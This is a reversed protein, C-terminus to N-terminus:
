PSQDHPHPCPACAALLAAPPSRPVLARARPARGSHVRTRWAAAAVVAALSPPVSSHQQLRCQSPHLPANMLHLSVQLLLQQRPTPRHERATAPGAPQRAQPIPLLLLLLSPPLLLVLLNMSSVERARGRTAARAPQHRAAHQQPAPRRPPPPAHTTAHASAPVRRCRMGHVLLHPFTLPQPTPPQVSGPSRRPRQQM